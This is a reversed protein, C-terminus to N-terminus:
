LTKQAQEAIHARILPWEYDCIDLAEDPLIVTWGCQCTLQEEDGNGTGSVRPDHEGPRRSSPM